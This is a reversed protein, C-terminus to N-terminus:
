SIPLNGNMTRGDRNRAACASCLGRLEVHRSTVSGISRAAAPIPLNDFAPDEFDRALGCRTCVFHHHVGTNADFRVRANLPRITTVLGLGVYMALTRYVTDLSLSPMKRRLNKFITELDPHDGSRAIERYIELRQHTLKVGADRLVGPLRSMMKQLEERDRNM